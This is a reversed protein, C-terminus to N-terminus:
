LCGENTIYTLAQFPCYEVCVPGGDRGRCLDCKFAIGKETDSKVGPPDFPCADICALCGTCEDEDIYTVGTAGDICLASDQLPCASYCYPQDCQRCVNFSHTATFAARIVNCRALSPGAIGEHWLSCMIECVGCATCADPNHVIKGTKLVKM